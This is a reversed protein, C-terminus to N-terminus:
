QESYWEEVGDYRRNEWYSYKNKKPRDIIARFPPLLRCTDCLEGYVRCNDHHRKQHDPCAISKTKGSIYIPISLCACVEEIDADNKLLDIDYM